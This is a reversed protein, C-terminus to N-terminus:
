EQTLDKQEGAEFTNLTSYEESFKGDLRYKKHRPIDENLDFHIKISGDAEITHGDMNIKGTMIGDEM